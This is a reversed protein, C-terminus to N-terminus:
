VARKIAREYVSRLPRVLLDSLIGAGAVLAAWYFFPALFGFAHNEPSSVLVWTAFAPAGYLLSCRQVHGLLGRTRIVYQQILAAVPLYLGVSTLLLASVRILLGPVETQTRMAYELELTTLTTTLLVGVGYIPVFAAAYPLPGIIFWIVKKMM